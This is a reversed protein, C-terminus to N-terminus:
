LTKIKEMIELSEKAAKSKKFEEVKIRYDHTAIVEELQSVAKELAEKESLYVNLSTRDYFFIVEPIHNSNEKVTKLYHDAYYVDIGSNEKSFVKAEVARIDRIYNGSCEGQIDTAWVTMGEPSINNEECYKILEAYNM